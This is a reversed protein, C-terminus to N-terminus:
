NSPMSQAKPLDFSPVQWKKAAGSSPWSFEKSTFCTASHKAASTTATCGCAPAVNAPIRHAMICFNSDGSSIASVQFFIPRINQVGKKGLFKPKFSGAHWMMNGDGDMVWSVADHWGSAQSVVQILTISLQFHQLRWWSLKRNKWRKRKSPRDMLSASCNSFMVRIPSRCIALSGSTALDPKCIKASRPFVGPKRNNERRLIGLPINPIKISKADNVGGHFRITCSWNSTHIM